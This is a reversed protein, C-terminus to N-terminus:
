ADWTSGACQSAASADAFGYSVFDGNMAVCLPGSGGLSVFVATTDTVGRISVQDKTVPGTTYVISPDFERAADPGFGALSGNEAFYVQAGRIANTLLVKAAADNATDIAGVAQQVSDTHAKAMWVFPAAGLVAIIGVIVWTSLQVEGHESRYRGSM